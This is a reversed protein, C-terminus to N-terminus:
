KWGYQVIHRHIVKLAKMSFILIGPLLGHRLQELVDLTANLITSNFGGSQLGDCPSFVWMAGVKM